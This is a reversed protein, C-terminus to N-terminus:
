DERYRSHQSHVTCEMDILRASSVYLFRSPGRRTTLQLLDQSIVAVVDSRCIKISTVQTLMQFVLAYLGSEARSEHAVHPQEHVM